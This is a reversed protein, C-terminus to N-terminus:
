SVARLIHAQFFAPTNADAFMTRATTTSKAYHLRVTVAGADIDGAQLTYRYAGQLMPGSTDGSSIVWAAVGLTSALSASLGVGVPNVRSGSVMTYVDFAVSQAVTNLKCNPEVVLIDGAAATLTLDFAALGTIATADLTINGSTVEVFDQDVITYGSQTKLSLPAYTGSFPASGALDDLTAKKSVPTGAVDDVLYLLDAGVPAAEATLATLKSDPM